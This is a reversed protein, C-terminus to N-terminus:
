STRAACKRRRKVQDLGEEDVVAWEMRGGFNAAHMAKLTGVLAWLENLKGVLRGMGGPRRVESEFDELTVRLAEEEPKLASSRLASVLLHLHKVIGLLRHTLQTQTASAQRLRAVNKLNHTDGLKEIRKQIETLREQHMAAQQVQADVRKQLDDFSTALVPVM